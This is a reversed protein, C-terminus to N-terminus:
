RCCGLLLTPLNRHGFLLLPLNFLAIFAVDLDIIFTCLTQEIKEAPSKSLSASLMELCRLLPHVALLGAVLSFHFNSSSIWLHIEHFLHNIYSLVRLCSPFLKHSCATFAYLSLTYATNNCISFCKGETLKKLPMSM